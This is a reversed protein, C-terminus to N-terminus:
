ADKHLDVRGALIALAANRGAALDDRQAPVNARLVPEPELTEHRNSGDGPTLRTATPMAVLVLVKHRKSPLSVMYRFREPHLRLFQLQRHAHTRVKLLCDAHAARFHPHAAGDKALSGGLVLRRYLPHRLIISTPPCQVLQVTNFLIVTSFEFRYTSTGTRQSVSRCYM